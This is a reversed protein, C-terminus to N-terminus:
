SFWARKLDAVSTAANDRTAKRANDFYRTDAGNTRVHALTVEAIWSRVSDNPNPTVLLERIALLATRITLAPSWKDFLLDLCIHGNDSVNCHYIPTEFRIVPAVFPYDDKARVSLVFNGGAFPSDSPGEMIVRMQM